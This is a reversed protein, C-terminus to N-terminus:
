AHAVQQFLARRPAVPANAEPLNGIFISRVGDVIIEGELGSVNEIRRVERKEMARGALETHARFYHKLTDHVSSLAHGTVTAIEPVTCGSLALELVVTHRLQRLQLKQDFGTLRKRIKTYTKTLEVPDFPKGTLSRVFMYEGHRYGDDLLRRASANMVQIRIERETKACKYSFCGDVYDYGYRFYRVDELRQGIEWQAIMMRALGREGDTIAQTVACRLDDATWTKLKPRPLRASYSITLAPDRWGERVAKELLRRVELYLAKRRNKSLVRPIFIKDIRSELITAPALAPDWGLLQVIRKQASAYTARSKPKLGLWNSHNKRLEILQSWSRDFEPPSPNAEAARRARYDSLERYLEEARREISKEQASTLEALRVGSRGDVLIPRSSPWDEPRNRRVEFCFKATGDKRPRVVVCPGYNKM